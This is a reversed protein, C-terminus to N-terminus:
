RAESMMGIPESEAYNYGFSLVSGFQARFHIWYEASAIGELRIVFWVHM